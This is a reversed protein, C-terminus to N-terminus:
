KLFIIQASCYGCVNCLGKQESPQFLLPLAIMILHLLFTDPSLIVCESYLGDIPLEQCLDFDISILNQATHCGFAM